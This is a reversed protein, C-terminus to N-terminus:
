SLQSLISPLGECNGGAGLALHSEAQDPPNAPAPETPLLPEPKDTRTAASGELLHAHSQCRKTRAFIVKRQHDGHGLITQNARRFRISQTAGM